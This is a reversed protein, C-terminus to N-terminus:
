QSGKVMRGATPQVPRASMPYLRSFIAYQDPSLSVPTKMVVRVVGETCPPTTLSGMYIYYGKDSPMQPGWDVMQSATIDEGRELPLNDLVAQVGAHATGKEFSLSVVLWQGETDKHLFEASMDYVKSRIQDQAPAHFRLSQLEYARGRLKLKNGSGVQALIGRGDDVVKLTSPRYDFVLPELNVQISDQIDIPSQRKGNGCAAFEPKVRAWFAPGSPGEYAWPLAIAMSPSAAASAVALSGPYAGGGASSPRGRAVAGGVTHAAQRSANVDAPSVSRLTLRFENPKGTLTDSKEMGLRRALRTRLRDMSADEPDQPMGANDGGDGLDSKQMKENLRERLVEMPDTIAGSAVVGKPAAHAAEAPKLAEAGSAGAVGAGALFLGAGQLLSGIVIDRRFAFSFCRMVRIAGSVQQRVVQKDATQGKPKLFVRLQGSVEAPLVQHVSLIECVSGMLKPTFASRVRNPTAAARQRRNKFFRSFVSGLLVFWSV